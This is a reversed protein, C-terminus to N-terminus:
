SISKLYSSSALDQLSLLGEPITFMTTSTNAFESFYPIRTIGDKQHYDLNKLDNIQLTM